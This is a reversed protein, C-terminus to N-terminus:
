RDVTFENLATCVTGVEDDTLEPYMPLSLEEDAHAESEPFSGRPKGLDAYSEQLHIPVPYHILTGIGRAALHEQLAARHATRIPYLHYVHRGYPMEEPLRVLPNSIGGAYMAAIARRRANWGDLRPLKLSLIAAQLDDLRSNFGKISHYYRREQGYNRIMRMKRALEEDSTLVMGADGFAGLNKSPYFSFAAADGLTGAKKGKYETGHAQACDELVWIGRRRAIDLIPDMDASQGYLHVPMIVKTQPSIATELRDPDMTYSHPHCDVLVPTANAFSVGSVTPVCTNAVTIVEDGGGAGLARLAIHIAETGSGVGVGFRAGCYRAFEDEFQEMRKGLVFWGSELTAHIVADLDPQLGSVQRKLDGAPITIATAM